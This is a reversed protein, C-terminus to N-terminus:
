GFQSHCSKWAGLKTQLQCNANTIKLYCLDIIIVLLTFFLNLTM